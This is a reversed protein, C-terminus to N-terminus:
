LKKLEKEIDSQESLLYIKRLIKRMDEIPIFFIQGDPKEVKINFADSQIYKAKHVGILEM